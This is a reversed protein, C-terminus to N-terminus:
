GTLGARRVLLLDALTDQSLIGVVAGAESVVPLAPRKSAQLAALGEEFTAGPPM